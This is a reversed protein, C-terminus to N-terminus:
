PLWCGCVSSRYSTNRWNGSWTGNESTCVPPCVGQAAHNNFIYRAPVDVYRKQAPVDSWPISKTDNNLGWYTVTNATTNIDAQWIYRLNTTEVKKISVVQGSQNFGVLAFNYEDVKDTYSLAWYKIGSNDIVPCTASRVSGQNDKFCDLKMGAPISPISVNSEVIAAPVLNDIRISKSTKNQRNTIVIVKAGSSLKVGGPIDGSWKYNWVYSSGSTPRMAGIIRIVNGVTPQVEITVGINHADRLHAVTVTGEVDLTLGQDSVAKTIVPTYFAAYVTGQLLVFLIMLKKVIKRM